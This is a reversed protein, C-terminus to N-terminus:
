STEAQDSTFQLLIYGSVFFYCFYELPYLEALIQHVTVKFYYASSWLM